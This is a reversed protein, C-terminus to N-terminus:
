NRDTWKEWLMKWVPNTKIMIVWSLPLISIVIPSPPVHFMLSLPFWITLGLTGAILFLHVKFLYEMQM